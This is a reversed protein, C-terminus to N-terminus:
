LLNYHYNNNFFNIIDEKTLSNILKYSFFSNIYRNILMKYNLLSQLKLTKKNNIWENIIDELYVIKKM